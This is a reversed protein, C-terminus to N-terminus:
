IIISVRNMDGNLSKSSDLNTSWHYIYKSINHREICVCVLLQRVWNSHMLIKIIDAIEKRTKEKRYEKFLWIKETALATENTNWWFQMCKRKPREICSPFLLFPLQRHRFLIDRGSWSNRHSSNKRGHGDWSIRDDNLRVAIMTWCFMFFFSPLKQWKCFESADGIPRMKYLRNQKTIATGIWIMFLCKICLCVCCRTCFLVFLCNCVCLFNCWVSCLVYTCFPSYFSRFPMAHPVPWKNLSFAIEFWFM